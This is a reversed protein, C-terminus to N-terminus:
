KAAGGKQAAMARVQVYTYEPMERATIVGNPCVYSCINCDECRDPTIVARGNEMHILEDPCNAACDGCGICSVWCLKKRTEPDDQSACPVLKAGKYPVIIPLEQPCVHVCATCGVCKDPNVKATGGTIEIADFRCAKACDGYGLCGFSCARNGGFLLNAAACTQIGQYEDKYGECGACGVYAAKEVVDEAEVGLVAAIQAAAADAGPVCLNTKVSSNGALAHAYGDCGAYGCAGCNAGPLCARIKVFTEDEPVSMFKDAVTLMVGCLLGIVTVAIIPILISM